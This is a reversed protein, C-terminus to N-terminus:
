KLTDAYDAFAAIRPDKAKYSTSVESTADVMQQRAEPTLEIVNFGKAKLEAMSEEELKQIYAVNDVMAEKACEIFLKQDEPSLSNWKDLNIMFIGPWTFHGTLTLNKAVEFHKEMLIAPLDMELGDIVKNQLSSYIEGYPIPTPSAGLASFIAIHMPTEAVRFKLGKYDGPVRVAKDVTLTHRFGSDYAALAKVNNASFGDFVAEAAPSNVLKLWQDWNHIMFPIQFAAALDSTSGVPAVSVLAMELSGQQVQEFLERDDGLQRAPYNTVTIRGNSRTQIKEIFFECGKNMPHNVQTVNAFRWKIEPKDQASASTSLAGFCYAFLAAAFLAFFLASFKKMVFEM